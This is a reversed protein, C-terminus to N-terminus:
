MDNRGAVSIQIDFFLAGRAMPGTKEKVLFACVIIDCYSRDWPHINGVIHEHDHDHDHVERHM